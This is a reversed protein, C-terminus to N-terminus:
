VTFDLGVPPIAQHASRWGPDEIGLELRRSHDLERNRTALRLTEGEPNGNQTVLRDSECRWLHTPTQEM